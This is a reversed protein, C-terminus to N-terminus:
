AGNTTARARTFRTSAPTTPWNLATDARAADTVYRVDLQNVVAEAQSVHVRAGAGTRDRHILAALAGIRRSGGSWTIPSFRQRTTSGTGPATDDSQPHPDTWLRSVGATARVLPGYGLRNSWPGRDGFASSEALVM